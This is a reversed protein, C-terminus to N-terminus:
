ACPDPNRAAPRPLVFIRRALDSELQERGYYRLMLDKRLLEPNDRQFGDWGGGDGGEVLHQRILMVFAVTITEHYKDAKGLHAAYNRIATQMRHLAIHFEHQRLYLYAARVHSAHRFESEPLECRELAALFDEDTV